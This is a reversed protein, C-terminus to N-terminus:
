WPSILPIVQRRNRRYIQFDRDVTVLHSAPFLESMRVLCADAFQMPVDRYSKQLALLPEIEDAAAFPIEIVGERVWKLVISPDGGRARLLFQAESLVSECTFLPPPLNLFVEKAWDHYEDNELVVALLPGTDVLIAPKALTM